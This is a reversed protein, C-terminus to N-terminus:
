QPRQPARLLVDMMGFLSSAKSVATVLYNMTFFFPRFFFLSFPESLFGSPKEKPSGDRNLRGSLQTKKEKVRQKTIFSQQPVCHNEINRLHYKEDALFFGCLLNCLM